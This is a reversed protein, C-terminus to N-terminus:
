EPKQIIFIGDQFVRRDRNRIVTALEIRAATQGAAEIDVSKVEIKDGQVQVNVNPFIDAIRPVKEGLFNTIKVISGEVKVTVPFHGSCVKLKYVYPQQVGAIMNKIHGQISNVISKARRGPVAATLVIKGQEIKMRCLPSSFTRKVEGQSGNISLEFGSVVATVNQPVDVIASAIQKEKKIKNTSM